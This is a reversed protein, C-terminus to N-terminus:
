SMRNDPVTQIKKLKPCVAEYYLLTKGIGHLTYVCSPPVSASLLSGRSCSDIQPKVHEIVVSRELRENGGRARSQV